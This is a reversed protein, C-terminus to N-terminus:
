LGSGVLVFPAWFLPRYFQSRQRSTSATSEGVVEIGRQPANTSATGSYLLSLQARRLAEAKTLKPQAHALQHYFQRMLTGTSADNVSWLSALVSAAGANLFYYNVGSIEIGDQQPEGLASECASLVVLHVGSLDQLTKIQPITLKESTGLVLYSREAAGPVFAGHTAIHVIARGALNDRLARFDFARNLFEAGPYVGQSDPTPQRVIADLEVPVYPLPSFNVFESAGMALVSTNQVQAPLRDRTNTLDASLVNAVTYQEILFHKGDFLASMPVYRLVRDLAFVLHEVKNATLEPAIPKILWDYLKQSAALLSIQASSNQLSARFRLVTEGLQQRTVPVEVSQIVGGKAAWVLWIKDDLVFPYILVTNPQAEVIERIKGLKTPDFFADDRSRRSRIETEYAQVTQNYTEILKQLRDNLDSLQACQTQKCVEVQQGLTILSSHQAVITAEPPAMTVAQPANPRTPEGAFSRLEQLKLFELSQIAEVNRGQTLLLDTLSRTTDMLRFRSLGAEQVIAQKYFVTALEPRHQQLLLTGIDNLTLAEGARDGMIRQQALQTECAALQQAVSGVSSRCSLDITLISGSPPTDITLPSVPQNTPLVPARDPSQTRPPNAAPPVQLSGSPTLVPSPLPIPAGSNNPNAPVSTQQALAIAPSALVLGLGALGSLVRDRMM